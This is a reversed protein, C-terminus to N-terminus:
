RFKARRDAGFCPTFLGNFALALCPISIFIGYHHVLSYVSENQHLIITSAIM